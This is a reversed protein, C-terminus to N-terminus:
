AVPRSATGLLEALRAIMAPADIPEPAPLRGFVPKVRQWLAANMPELAAAM